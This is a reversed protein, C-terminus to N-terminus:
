LDGVERETRRNEVDTQTERRREEKWDTCVCVASRHEYILDEKGGENM